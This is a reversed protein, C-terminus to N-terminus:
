RHYVNSNVYEGCTLFDKGPHSNSIVEKSVIKHISSINNLNESFTKM